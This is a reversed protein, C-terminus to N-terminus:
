YNIKINIPEASKFDVLCDDFDPPGFMKAPHNNSVGWGERPIGVFNTSMASDKDEDHLVAVAGKTAKIDNFICKARSGSIKATTYQLAKKHDDPFGDQGGFLQCILNGDSNRLGDVHIEVAVAYAKCSCLIIAIRGIFKVM